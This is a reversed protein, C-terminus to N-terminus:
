AQKKSSQMRKYCFFAAALFAVVSIYFWTSFSLQLADMKGLGLSDAGDKTKDAAEKAMGDNFWKKVDFMFGILAGASIIGTVIGAGSGSRSGTLSFVLGLIGLGLAAWIFYQANGEKKDKTKSVLDDTGSSFDKGGLGSGLVKWNKGMAYDLGTKSMLTTGGCKIESFPLLFLLIGIAFAVTSPIGTGFMGRSAAPLPAAPAPAATPQNSDM